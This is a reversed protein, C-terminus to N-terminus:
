AIYFAGNVLMSFCLPQMSFCLPQAKPKSLFESAKFSFQLGYKIYKFLKNSQKSEFQIQKNSIHAWKLLNYKFIQWTLFLRQWKQFAVILTFANCNVYYRHSHKIEGM